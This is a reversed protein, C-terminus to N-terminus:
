EKTAEKATTGEETGPLPENEVLPEAKDSVRIKEELKNVLSAAKDDLKELMDGAKAKINEGFDKVKETAESAASKVDDVVEKTYDKASEIEESAKEKIEAAKAITAQKSSGFLKKVSNIFKM